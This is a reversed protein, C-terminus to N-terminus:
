SGPYPASLTSAKYRHISIQYIPNSSMISASTSPNIMGIGGSSLDKADM